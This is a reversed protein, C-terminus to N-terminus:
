VLPKHFASASVDLLLKFVSVNFWEKVGEGKFFIL